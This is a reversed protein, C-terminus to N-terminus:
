IQKREKKGSGELVKGGMELETEKETKRHCYLM